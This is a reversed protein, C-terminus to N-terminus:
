VEPIKKTKTLNLLYSFSVINIYAKLYQNIFDCIEEDTNNKGIKLKELCDIQLIFDVRDENLVSVAIGWYQKVNTSHSPNIYWYHSDKIKEFPLINVGQKNDNFIQYSYYKRKNELPISKKCTDRNPSRRGAMKIHKEVKGDRDKEFIYEISVRTDCKLIEKFANHIKECVLESTKKFISTKWQNNSQIEITISNMLSSQNDLIDAAFKRQIFKRKQYKSCVYNFVIDFILIILFIIALSVKQQEIWIPIFIGLVAIIISHVFEIKGISYLFKIFNIFITDKEKNNDIWSFM